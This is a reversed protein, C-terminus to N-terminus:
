ATVLDRAPLYINWEALWPPTQARVRDDSLFPHPFGWPEALADVVTWEPAELGAQEFEHAALAALLTDWSRSGTGAPAAEWADSISPGKTLAERLHDRGQLLMRWAWEERGTRLAWRIERATVPASM